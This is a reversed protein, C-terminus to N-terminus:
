YENYHVFEELPRRLEDHRDASKVEDDGYGIYLISEPKLHSPLNFVESVIHPKFACVWLTGLDLSTAEVMMHDVVISTDIDVINKQDYKRVWAKEKNALMVIALPAGFTRSGQSLKEFGAESNIVLLEYPQANVGTPAVRGAELIKDLKDQEVPQEKYKRVSYRKKLISLVDMKCVM